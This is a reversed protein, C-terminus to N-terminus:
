ISRSRRWWQWVAEAASAYNERPGATKVGFWHCFEEFLVGHVDEPSTSAPLRALVTKAEPAYEGPPAGNGKILGVPDLEDFLRVLQNLLEKERPHCRTLTLRWVM